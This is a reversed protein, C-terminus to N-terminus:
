GGGAEGECVDVVVGTRVDFSCGPSRIVDVSYKVSQCSLLYGVPEV